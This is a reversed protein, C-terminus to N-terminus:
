GALKDQYGHRTSRSITYRGKKLQLIRGDRLLRSLSRNTADQSIKNDALYGGINSVLRERSFGPQHEVIALYAASAELLEHLTSAGTKEAFAKFGGSPAPPGIIQLAPKGSTPAM